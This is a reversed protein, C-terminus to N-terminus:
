RRSRARADIPESGAEAATANASDTSVARREARGAVARVKASMSRPTRQPSDRIYGPSFTVRRRGASAEDREGRRPSFVGGLSVLDDAIRLGRARRCEGKIAEIDGFQMCARRAAEPGPVGARVLDEAHADLHFRMEEALSDEFRKRRTLTTLFSRLRPFMDCRTPPDGGDGRHVIDVRSAAVRQTANGTAHGTRSGICGVRRREISGSGTAEPLGGRATRSGNAAARGGALRRFDTRTPRCGGIGGANHVASASRLAFLLPTRHPTHRNPLHHAVLLDRRHPDGAPSRPGSCGNRM